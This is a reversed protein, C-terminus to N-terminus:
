SKMYDAEHNKLEEYVEQFDSDFYARLQDYLEEFPESEYFTYIGEDADELGRPCTFSFTDYEGEVTWSLITWRGFLKYEREKPKYYVTIRHSKKPKGTPGHSAINKDVDYYDIQELKHEPLQM